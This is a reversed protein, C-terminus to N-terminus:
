LNGELAHHPHGHTTKGPRAGFTGVTGPDLYPASHGHMRIHPFRVIPGAPEPICQVVGMGQPTAGHVGLGGACLRREVLRLVVGGPVPPPGGLILGGSSLGWAPLGISSGRTHWTPAMWVLM